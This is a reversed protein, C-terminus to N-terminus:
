NTSTSPEITVYVTGTTAEQNVILVTGTVGGAVATGVITWVWWKEYWSEPVPTLDIQLETLKGPEVYTELYGPYFDEATMAIGHKGPTLGAFPAALPYPVPEAADLAVSGEDANSRLQLRGADIVQRGLLRWTAFRLAMALHSELGQFSEAARNVVKARAVDMLKLTIVYSEGLRGVSGSVLWDVGLAGGIEVLCSTDSTCQLIQKDTEFRLMTQIEDRSIVGMGEFKKLELSLLQTLSSAIGESVDHAALDIVAAKMGEPAMKLAFTPQSSAGARGLVKDVAELVAAKLDEVSVATASEAREVVKRSADALKVSVVHSEGLRGVHGTILKDAKVAESIRALCAEAGECQVVSKDTEHQVLVKLESESVVSLDAARGLHLVIDDTLSAALGELGEDAALNYVVVRTPEAARADEGAGGACLLGVILGLCAHSRGM